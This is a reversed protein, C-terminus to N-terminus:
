GGWSEVTYHITQAIIRGHRIVYSDAGDDVRAGNAQATWELFGVEGEVITTRYEFRANPLEDMLMRNLERVGAHGRYVGRGTLLVVDEAFNRRLDAEVSGSKSERLHDALVQAAARAGTQDFSSGNERATM